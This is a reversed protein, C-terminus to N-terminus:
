VIMTQVAKQCYLGTFIEYDTHDILFSSSNSNSVSSPLPFEVLAPKRSNFDVGLCGTRTDWSELFFKVQLVEPNAYAQCLFLSLTSLPILLLVRLNGRFPFYIAGLFKEGLDTMGMRDLANTM